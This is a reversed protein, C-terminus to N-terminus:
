EINHASAPQWGGSELWKFTQDDLGNVTMILADEDNDKYYRPRSGVVRFGFRHYLKQAILNSARVELTAQRIGKKISEKLVDVLLLKAIGCGRYDPHVAITAIHAEDIILWVVIEGVVWCRDDLQQLEAVRLLSRPNELLEYRFSSEPWPLTFSLRDILQVPPLDELRMARIRLSSLMDSNVAAQEPRSLNM